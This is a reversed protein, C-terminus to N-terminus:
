ELNQVFILDTVVTRFNDSLGIVNDKFYEKSIIRVPNVVENYANITTENM